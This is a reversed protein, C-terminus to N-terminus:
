RDVSGSDPHPLVAMLLGNIQQCHDELMRGAMKVTESTASNSIGDM